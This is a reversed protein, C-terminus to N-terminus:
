KAGYSMWYEKDKLLDTIEECTRGYIKAIAEICGEFVLDYGRPDNKKLKSIIDKFSNKSCENPQEDSFIMTYAIAYGSTYAFSFTNMAEKVLKYAQQRNMKSKRKLLIPQLRKCEKEFISMSM